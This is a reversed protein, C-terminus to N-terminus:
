DIRLDNLSGTPVAPALVWVRGMRRRLRGSPREVRADTDNVGDKGESGTDTALLRGRIDARPDELEGSIMEALSIDRDRDFGFGTTRLIGSM